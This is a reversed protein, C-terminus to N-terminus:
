KREAHTTDSATSVLAIGGSAGGAPASRRAASDHPGMAANDGGAEKPSISSYACLASTFGIISIGGPIRCVTANYKLNQTRVRTTHELFLFLHIRNHPVVSRSRAWQSRVLRLGVCELGELHPIGSANKMVVEIWNLRFLCCRIPYVRRHRPTRTGSAATRVCM